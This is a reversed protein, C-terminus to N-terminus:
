EPARRNFLVRLYYLTGGVGFLFAGWFNVRPGLKWLWAGLLAGPTVTLDRALYYAGVLQGQRPGASYQIILAKRAPEGFEKLGRIVFAAALWGFSHSGLLFLPFLTFFVFTLVVFPERGYRDSVYAVPVFCLMATAMEITTLLGFEKGGVGPLAMAYIVVWAFPIRECLRVLIDSLLLHRLAPSFERFASRLDLASREAARAPARTSIRQQVAIAGLGFLISVVLGVRIGDRVGLRDLLIGGAVPGVLIPVRRIISQVAIGMGYRDPALSTGVLTFTVPLSFASWAVFLFTAALVAGWHAIALVLLYGVISLLTFSVLARRPGWADNLVGGPYAYVAGLLTKLGDYVGIALAGAGLAELYKPVFRMWLEEGSGIVIMAALLAVVNRQLGFFDRARAAFSGM